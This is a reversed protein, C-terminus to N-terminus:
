ELRVADGRRLTGGRLVSAYAGLNARNHHAATRLIGLDAPLDDQPLTTMVCRACSRTISLRITEGILLTRGVWADEAFRPRDDATKVVINPRFRRADFQGGPYLEGMRDLTATTLLHVVASDFFTGAPLDFTTVTNRHALGDLDPWHEEAAVTRLHPSALPASRDIGQLTVERKLAASLREHVDPQESGVITGNPLAIRVAPVREGPPSGVLNARFAFLEPWKRPHKASAVTGGARDILAYARDGALGGSSVEAADLEEGLMSKVPYRWLAAVSGLDPPAADVM